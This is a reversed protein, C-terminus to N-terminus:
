IIDQLEKRKCLEQKCIKERKKQRNRTFHCHWTTHASYRINYIYLIYKYVSLSTCVSISTYRPWNFSCRQRLTHTSLPFVSLHIINYPAGRKPIIHIYILISIDFVYFRNNYLVYGTVLPIGCEHVSSWIDYFVHFKVRKSPIKEKWFLNTTNSIEARIKEYHFRLCYLRECFIHKQTTLVFYENDFM